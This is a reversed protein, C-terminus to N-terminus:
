GFTNEGSYTIYLFDDEDKYEDYILAISSSTPPLVNKVYIFIAQDAELKIRKRIVYIFQGVTLESPVLFKNKDITPLNQDKKNAKEVIIPLRGPYKIKLSNATIKRKEIINQKQFIM